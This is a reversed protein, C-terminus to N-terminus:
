RSIIRRELWRFPVYLLGALAFALEFGIDGTKKGIPGEFWVQYMSPVVLGFSGFAAALAAVGLPLRSPSDWASIDYTSFDGRRFVFHEVLLIAIFATAWYGIV